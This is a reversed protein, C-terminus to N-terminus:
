SEMPGYEKMGQALEGLRRDVRGFVTDPPLMGSPGRDGAPVGTLLEIGEEVRSIAWVHFRGRRVAEVVEPDLMLHPVNRAPIMCGQEGTLGRLKCLAYYGEIKENVGGIPQVEGKQNVSGTVAVSQRIPVDALSSLLAFLEACSASDGEVGGYSQEFVLSASLALPKDQAFRSRLFGALILVGKTHISGSLEAEREIDIIGARGMGVSATIRSPLGFAHDGVDLVVLGNVQGAKEGDLDVLVTGEAIRERLMEEVLDLRHKRKAVAQAVHDAGIQTANAQKAWYGAERIVDAVDNFRTSLKGQRGALRVSHEAVAAVAERRFPLLGDDQTKKRVFRALNRLEEDSQDTEVALDAKVKFIKKFDEDMQYLLRYIQRTGVLVVKVDLPIPEPKLSISAFVNMIELPHIELKRHRLTRKLAPWVGPEVLVDLADLVLFGGSARALAGAKIRTHDTKWEGSVARAGDISGFLNRYNPNTEWLIPRGSTRTHDVLVNVAYPRMREELEARAQDREAGTAPEERERFRELHDLVDDRVEELWARVEKDDFAERLDDVLDTAVPRVAAQDLDLIKQRVDLEIKRFEKTLAELEAALKAQEGKLKEFDKKAFRGEEVLTELQDMQVPNGAVLPSLEPKVFPGVQIQVMAFGAEEIRKEFTKVKDKHAAKAKEVTATRRDRYSDSEFVAPINKRLSEVLDDMARQFDCGRGGPFRLLHPRDPDKFNHVFVLDDPVPGSKEEQALVHRVATSRGTGVEGAVFVNYGDGRVAFALRLSELARPQGIISIPRDDLEATSQFPFIAPDCRWRLSDPSLRFPAGPGPGDPPTTKKRPSM